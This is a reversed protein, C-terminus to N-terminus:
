GRMLFKKKGVKEKQKHIESPSSISVNKKNILLINPLRISPYYMACFVSFRLHSKHIRWKVALVMLEGTEDGSLDFFHIFNPNSFDIIGKLVERNKGNITISDLVPQEKSM